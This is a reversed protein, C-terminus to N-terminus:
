ITSGVTTPYQKEYATQCRICREATPNVELRAVDIDTGCRVCMGYSGEEIRSLASQVDRLEGLDRNIQANRLDVQETAVSADGPDGVEGAMRRYDDESERTAVGDRVESQLANQRAVLRERLKELTRDDLPM